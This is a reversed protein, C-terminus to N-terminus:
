SSDWRGGATSGVEAYLTKEMMESEMVISSLNELLRGRSAMVTFIDDERHICELHGPSQDHYRFM